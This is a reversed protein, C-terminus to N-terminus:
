CHRERTEIRGAQGGSRREEQKIQQNVDKQAEIDQGDQLTLSGGQRVRRKRAKRRQNVTQNAERLDSVEARLLAVSHMSGQAGKAFQDIANYISTPSSNQHRAIRSKIFDSQSYAEIPNQPTKSVWPLSEPVPSRSPSPTRLKVDLKSIVSQPDLPVLGAGRFGGQINIKTLTRNFAEKFAPFFDDKQIHSIQARMLGEIQRGYARKLPGFCGVDLPQLLHSSHPPWCLTQINNEKCYQEFVDSHHSGHGDLVLLRYAGKGKTRSKTHKNFHKLWELGLENTTWGNGGVSIVWDKPLPSNQYWSALHYQGKVIIFSPIAYGQSNVGQIVSVWERNRPQALKPKGRRDATTVVMTAEIQGM